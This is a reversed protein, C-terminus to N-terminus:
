STVQERNWLIWSIELILTHIRSETEYLNTILSINSIM